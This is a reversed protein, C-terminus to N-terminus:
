NFTSITKINIFIMELMTKTDRSHNIQGNHSPQYCTVTADRAFFSLFISEIINLISLLLPKMSGTNKM